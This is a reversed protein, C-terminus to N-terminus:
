ILEVSIATCRVLQRDAALFMSAGCCIASAVHIADPTRLDLQTRLETARGIVDRDIDTLLVESAEFFSDYLEPLSHDGERLPKCRCELRSLESTAM